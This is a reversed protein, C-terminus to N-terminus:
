CRLSSRVALLQEDGVIQVYEVRLRVQYPFASAARVGREDIELCM